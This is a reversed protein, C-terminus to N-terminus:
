HQCVQDVRYIIIIGKNYYLGAPSGDMCKAEPYVSTDLLILDAPQNAVATLPLVLSSCLLLLAGALGTPLSMEQLRVIERNGQPAQSQGRNKKKKKQSKVGVRALCVPVWAAFM